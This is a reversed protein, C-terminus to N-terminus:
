WVCRDHIARSHRTAADALVQAYTEFGLGDASRQDAEGVAQDTIFSIKM